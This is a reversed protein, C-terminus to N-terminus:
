VAGVIPLPSSEARAFRGKAYGILPAEIMRWSIEALVCVVLLAVFASFPHGLEFFLGYVFIHFLYLAYCRRGMWILPRLMVPRKTIASSWVAVCCILAAVSLFAFPGVM